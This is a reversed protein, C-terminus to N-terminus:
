RCVPLKHIPECLKYLRTKDAITHGDDLSIASPCGGIRPLDRHGGHRFKMNGNLDANVANHSGDFRRKFGYRQQQHQQGMPHLGSDYDNYDADPALIDDQNYIVGLKQILTRIHENESDVDSDDKFAESLKWKQELLYRYNSNKANTKMEKPHYITHYHKNNGNYLAQKPCRCQREIWPTEYLDIKSCVANPACIPLDNESTQFSHISISFM